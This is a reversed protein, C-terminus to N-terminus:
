VIDIKKEKKQPIEDRRQPVQGGLRRLCVHGCDTYSNCIQLWATLSKGTQLSVLVEPNEQSTASRVLPVHFDSPVNVRRAHTFESVWSKTHVKVFTVTLSGECLLFLQWLHCENGM